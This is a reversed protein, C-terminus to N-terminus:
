NAGLCESSCFDSMCLYFDTAYTGGNAVFPSLCQDPTSKGNCQCSGYTALSNECATTTECDDLETICSTELCASCADSSIPCSAPMTTTPKCTCIASSTQNDVTIPLTFATSTYTASTGSYLSNTYVTVSCGPTVYISSTVDNFVAPVTSADFETQGATLSMSFVTGEEYADSYLQGCLTKTVGTTTVTGVPTGVENPTGAAGAEGASAGAAGISTAGGFSTRSGGVGTSGASSRSGGVGGFNSTGGANGSGGSNDTPPFFVPDIATCSAPNQTSCGLDELDSACSRAADASAGCSAEFTASYDVCHDANPWNCSAALDCLTHVIAHCPNGDALDAKCGNLLVLAFLGIFKSYQRM